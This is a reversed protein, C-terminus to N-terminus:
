ISLIFNEPLSLCLVFMWLEDTWSDNSAEIASQQWDIEETLQKKKIEAGTIKVAIKADIYSKALGGLSGIIQGIM